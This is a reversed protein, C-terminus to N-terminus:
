PLFAPCLQGQGQAEPGTKTGPPGSRVRPAPEPTQSGLGTCHPAQVCHPRFLRGGVPGANLLGYVMWRRHGLPEHRQSSFVDVGPGARSVPLLRNVTASFQFGGLLRRCPISPPPPIREAVLLSCSGLRRRLRTLPWPRHGPSLLARPFSFPRMGSRGDEPREPLPLATPHDASRRHGQDGHPLRLPSAGQQTHCRGPSDPCRACM